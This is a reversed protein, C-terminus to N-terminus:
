RLTIVAQPGQDLQRMMEAFGPRNLAALDSRPLLNRLGVKLLEQCRKTPRAENPAYATGLAAVRKNALRSVQPHGLHDFHELARDHRSIAKVIAANAGAVAAAGLALHPTINAVRNEAHEIVRRDRVERPTVPGEVSLEVKRDVGSLTRLHYPLVVHIM